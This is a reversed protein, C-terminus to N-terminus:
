LRTLAEAAVMRANGDLGAARLAALIHYLAEPSVGRWSPTQMGVASLLLVTAPQRQLAARNLARTWSNEAGVRVDLAQAGREIDAANLRGLGAMAAFFMQKRRGNADDAPAYDGITGYPVIGARPDALTLLAWGLGGSAVHGRWRLAPLDLGAALMSAVLRDGDANEAGVPIRMAARATLILRGYRGDATTPENWLTTLSTLRTALDGGATAQGLDRAVGLPALADDADSPISAYLDALADSSLVGAIAAREAADARLQPAISPATALWFQVAPSLGDYMAAPIPVRAAMAMGYRWPTLRSVGAWEVTVDQGGSGGANTVKQALALDIGGIVGQRSAQQLLPQARRPLGALGTCIAKAAIWGNEPDAIQAGEVLPCLAGADGTALAAQMAVQYLKPTYNEPDVSQVMARAAPAEGMRLLLWAREAAFDPGNIRRPTDARSLLANRLGMEMWRSLLPGHLRRMLQEVFMGDADGWADAALSGDGALAGVATLSRRAFDPTVYRSLALPDPPASPTPTAGPVPLGSASAGTGLTSVDPSTGRPPAATRPAPPQDANPPAAPTAAPAPAPQDFGPPLISTPSDQQGLAPGAAALTVAALLAAAVTGSAIANRSIPM